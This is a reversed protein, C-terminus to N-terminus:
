GFHNTEDFSGSNGTSFVEEVDFIGRNEVFNIVADSLSASIMGSIRNRVGQPISQRTLFNILATVFFSIVTQVLGSECAFLWLAHGLSMCDDTSGVYFMMILILIVSSTVFVKRNMAKYYCEQITTLKKDPNDSSIRCTFSIRTNKLFEIVTEKCKEPLSNQNSDTSNNQNDEKVISVTVAEFLGFITAFYFTSLPIYAVAKLIELGINFGGDATNEVVSAIFKFPVFSGEPIKEILYNWEYLLLDSCLMYLKELGWLSLALLFPIIVSMLVLKRSFIKKRFKKLKNVNNSQRIKELKKQFRKGCCIYLALREAIKRILFGTWLGPLALFRIWKQWLTFDAISSRTSESISTFHVIKHKDKGNFLNAFKEGLAYPISFYIIGYYIVTVLILEILNLDM